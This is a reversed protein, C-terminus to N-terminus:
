LCVVSEKRAHPVCKNWNAPDKPWHNSPLCDMNPRLVSFLDTALGDCSKTLGEMKEPMYNDIHYADPIVRLLARAMFSRLPSGKPTVEYALKM